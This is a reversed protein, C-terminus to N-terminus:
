QKSKIMIPRCDLEGARYLAETTHQLTEVAEAIDTVYLGRQMVLYQLDNQIMEALRTSCNNIFKNWIEDDSVALSTALTKNDTERLIRQICTDCYGRYVAMTEHLELLLGTPDELDHPSVPANSPNCDGHYLAIAGCADLKLATCILAEQLKKRYDTLQPSIKPLCQRAYDANRRSVNKLVKDVVAPPQDCLLYHLEFPSLHNPILEWMLAEVSADPTKSLYEMKFVRSRVQRAAQPHEDELANALAELIEAKVGSLTALLNERPNKPLFAALVQDPLLDQLQSLLAEPAQLSEPNEFVMQCIRQQYELNLDEFMSSGAGQEQRNLVLLTALEQRHRLSLATM